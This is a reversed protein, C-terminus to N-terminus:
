RRSRSTPADFPSLSPLQRGFRDRPWQETAGTAGRLSGADTWRVEGAVSIGEVIDILVTAGIKLQRESTVIGCGSRSVDQLKGHAKASSFKCAVDAASRLRKDLRRDM